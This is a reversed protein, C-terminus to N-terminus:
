AKDLAAMVTDSVEWGHFVSYPTSIWSVYPRSKSVRERRQRAAEEKARLEQELRWKRELEDLDQGYRLRVGGYIGTEGLKKGYALCQAKVPCGVCALRIDNDSDLGLCNAEDMWDTDRPLVPMPVVPAFVGIMESTRQWDAWESQGGDQMRSTFAVRWLRVSVTMM